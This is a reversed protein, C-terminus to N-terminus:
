PCHKGLLQKSPDHITAVVSGTNVTLVATEQQGAELGVRICLSVVSRPVDTAIPRM